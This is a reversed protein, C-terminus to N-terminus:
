HTGTAAMRVFCRAMELDAEGANAGSFELKLAKSVATGIAGGIATGVGPIPMFSGSVIGAIPLAAKARTKLGEGLVPLVQRGIFRGAKKLGNDIRKFFRGLLQDLEEESSVSLLESALEIEEAENFPNERAAEGLSASEAEDLFTGKAIRCRPCNCNTLHM